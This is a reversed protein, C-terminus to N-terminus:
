LMFIHVENLCRSPFYFLTIITYDPMAVRWKSSSSDKQQMADAAFNNCSLWIVTIGFMMYSVLTEIDYLM